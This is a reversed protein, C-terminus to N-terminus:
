CFVRLSQVLIEVLIPLMTSTRRCVTTPLSPYPLSTSYSYSVHSMLCSVHDSKTQSKSLLRSNVFPDAETREVRHLIMNRAIRSRVVVVVVISGERKTSTRHQRGGGYGVISRPAQVSITITM